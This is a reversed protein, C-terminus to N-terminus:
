PNVMNEEKVVEKALNKRSRLWTTTLTPQIVLVSIADDIPKSDINEKFNTLLFLADPVQHLRRPM